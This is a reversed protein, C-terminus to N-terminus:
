ITPWASPGVVRTTFRAPSNYLVRPIQDWAFKRDYTFKILLVYQDHATVLVAIDLCFVGMNEINDFFRKLMIYYFNISKVIRNCLQALGVLDGVVHM